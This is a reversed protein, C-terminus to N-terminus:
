KPVQEPAINGPSITPAAPAPRTEYKALGRSIVYGVSGILGYKAATGDGITGAWALCVDAVIILVTVLFESTKTGPTILSSLKM